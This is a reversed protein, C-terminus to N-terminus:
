TLSSPASLGRRWGMPKTFRQPRSPGTLTEHALLNVFAAARFEGAADSHLRSMHTIRANSDAYHNWRAAFRAIAAPAHSM